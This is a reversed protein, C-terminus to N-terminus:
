LNQFKLMMTKDVHGTHDLTITPLGVLALAAGTASPAGTRYYWYQAYMYVGRPCIQRVTASPASDAAIKEWQMSKNINFRRGCRVYTQRTNLVVGKAATEHVGMGSRRFTERPRRYTRKKNWVPKAQKRRALVGNAIYEKTDRFKPMMNDDTIQLARNAASTHLPENWCDFATALAGTVIDVVDLMATPTTDSGDDLVPHPVFYANYMRKLWSRKKRLQVQAEAVTDCDAGISVLGKDEVTSIDPIWWVVEHLMLTSNWITEIGVQDATDAAAWQIRLSHRNDFYIINCKDGTRCTEDNFASAAGPNTRALMPFVQDAFPMESWFVSAPNQGVDQCGTQGASVDGYIPMGMLGCSEAVTESVGNYPGQVKVFATSSVFKDKTTSVSGACNKLSWIINTDGLKKMCEYVVPCALTGARKVAKPITKFHGRKTRKSSRRRKKGSKRRYTTKYRRRRVPASRTRRKKRYSMKKRGYRRRRYRGLSRTRGTRRRYHSRGYPM